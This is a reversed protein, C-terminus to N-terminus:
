VSSSYYRRHVQNQFLSIKDEIDKKNLLKDKFEISKNLEDFKKDYNLIIKNEDLLVRDERKTFIIVNLM